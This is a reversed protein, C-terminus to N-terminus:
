SLDSGEIIATLLEQEDIELALQKKFVSKGKYSVRPGKQELVGTSIAEDILGGVVDFKGSGDPMFLFDWTCEAFPARLKTKVCTATITQGVKMKGDKIPSARLSVRV